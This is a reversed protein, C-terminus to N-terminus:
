CLIVCVAFGTVFISLFLFFGGEIPGAMRQRARRLARSMALLVANVTRHLGNTVDPRWLWSEGGFGVWDM